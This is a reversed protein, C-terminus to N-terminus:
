EDGDETKLGISEYYAKRAETMMYIGKRGYKRVNILMEDFGLIDFMVNIKPQRGNAIDIIADETEKDYEEDSDDDDDFEVENDPIYEEGRLKRQREEEEYEAWMKDCKESITM